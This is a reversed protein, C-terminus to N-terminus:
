QVSNRSKVSNSRISMIRNHREMNIKDRESNRIAERRLRREANLKDRAMNRNEILKKVQETKIKEQTSQRRLLLREANSLRPTKNSLGLALSTHSIQSHTYQSIQSETYGSIGSTASMHEYDDIANIEQTDITDIEQTNVTILNECPNVHRHLRASLSEVDRDRNQLQQDSIDRNELEMSEIACVKVSPIDVFNETNDNDASADNNVPTPSDSDSSESIQVMDQVADVVNKISKVNSQPLDTPAIISVKIPKSSVKQNTEPLDDIIEVLVDALKTLALKLKASQANVPVNDSIAKRLKLSSQDSRIPSNIPLHQDSLNIKQVTSDNKLEIKKIKSSSCAQGM